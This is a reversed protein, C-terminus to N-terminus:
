ISSLKREIHQEASEVRAQYQFAKASNVGGDGDNYARTAMGLDNWRYLRLNLYGM